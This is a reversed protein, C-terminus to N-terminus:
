LYPAYYKDIELLQENWFISALGGEVGLGELLYKMDSKVNRYDIAYNIFNWECVNHLLSYQM